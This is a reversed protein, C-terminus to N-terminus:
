YYPQFEYAELIERSGNIHSNHIADLSKSNIIADDLTSAEHLTTEGRAIADVIEQAYYFFSRKFISYYPKTEKSLYQKDVQDDLVKEPQEINKYLRLFNHLDYTLDGNEGRVVITFEEETRSVATSSIEVTTDEFTMMASVFNSAFCEYKDSNIPTRYKYVPDLAGTITNPNKDLLFRALDVLHVGMALRFGGGRKPDYSWKMPTSIDTSSSSSQNITIRYIRGIDGSQIIRKMAQIHPNFRLQHSVIVLRNKDGAHSAIKRTEDETNGVPKELLVHKDTDLAASMHEYHFENPTTVCILDIDPHDCVERYNGTVLDIDYNESLLKAREYSSGALAVIKANNTALFGPTIQTLGIGTGIIGVRLPNTM